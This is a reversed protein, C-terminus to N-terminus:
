WRCIGTTGSTDVVRFDLVRMAFTVPEGRWPNDAVIDDTRYEVGDHVFVASLGEKGEDEWDLIWKRFEVVPLSHGQLRNRPNSTHRPDIELVEVRDEQFGWIKIPNSGLLLHNSRLGETRLDSFMTFAGTTRLGLYPQMAWAVVLLPFIVCWRPVARSWVPVGGWPPASRTLWGRALPWVLLLVTANLTLGQLQHFSQDYGYLAFYGGALIGIGANAVLYLDLRGISWKGVRLAPDEQLLRWYPGPVFAAYLAFAMSSFDFFVMMALVAHISWSFVLMPLQLRRVLLSLGGLLEWAVVVFPVALFFAQPWPLSSLRLLALLGHVFDVGCSGDADLFAHNLKHFGAFSYVLVLLLRVPPLYREVFSEPSGGGGAEWVALAILLYLSAFLYLNNHNGADPFQLFLVQTASLALFAAFTRPTVGRMRIAVGACLFLAASVPFDWDETLDIVFACMYLAAFVNFQTPPLRGRKQENAM